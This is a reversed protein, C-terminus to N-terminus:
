ANENKFPAASHGRETPVTGDAHMEKLVSGLYPILQKKRSLIEDKEIHPYNIRAIIEPDGKVLLLSNQTNIDTVLVGAFVLHEDRCLSELANSLSKAHAWFNDFGLEEVQSVAFRVGDEEYVKHDSRIVEAAPSSLIISGSAFIEDALERSNVKALGSLWELIEGDKPTSTPSNLLLTDSIIGSMM